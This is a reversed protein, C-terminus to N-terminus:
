LLAAAEDRHARLAVHKPTRGADDRASRDAGAELLVRIVRVFGAKAATHLATAGKPGRAHLDAGADLLRRVREPREGRDGRCVYVLAPWGGWETADPDCGAAFLRERLGDELDVAWTARATAPDAGADLLREVLAREGRTMELLLADHGAVRAGAALLAEVLAVHGGAVAHHLPTVAWVSDAAQPADLLSADRELHDRVADLEGLFAATYVDDTTRPALLAACGHKRNRIAVALPKCLVFTEHRYRGALDADAGRALLAEVLPLRGKNAAEWLLTRGHGGSQADLLQPDRDLLALVADLEGKAALKLTADAISPM